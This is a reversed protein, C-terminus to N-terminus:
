PHRPCSTLRGPIGTVESLGRKTRPWPEGAYLIPPGQSTPLGSGCLVRLPSSLLSALGNLLLRHCKLISFWVWLGSSPRTDLSPQHLQLEPLTCRSGNVRGLLPQSNDRSGLLSGTYHSHPIQVRATSPRCGQKEGLQITGSHAKRPRVKWMQPLLWQQLM